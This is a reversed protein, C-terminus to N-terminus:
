QGADKAIQEGFSTLTGTVTINLSAPSGHRGAVHTLRAEEHADRHERMRFRIDLIFLGHKRIVAALDQAVARYANKEDDTM